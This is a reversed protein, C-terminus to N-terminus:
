KRGTVIFNMAGHWEYVPTEAFHDELYSQKGRMLALLRQHDEDTFGHANYIARRDAYRSAVWEIDETLEGLAIARREELPLTEDDYCLLHAFPHIHIKTLGCAQFLAPYRFAHWAGDQYLAASPNAFTNFIIEERQSLRQLEEMGEIPYDGQWHVPPISRTAVVCSVTGGPRCVRILELLGAKADSLVGLYTYNTVADFADDAFSLAFGDDVLLSVKHQLGKERLLSM